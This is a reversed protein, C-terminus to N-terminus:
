ILFVMNEAVMVQNDEQMKDLCSNIESRTFSKESDGKTVSEIIQQLPLSQAHVKKFEGFLLLKFKKMREESIAITETDMSTEESMSISTPVSTVKQTPQDAIEEEDFEYIDRASRLKKRGPSAPHTEMEEEDAEDEDSGDKHKRKNAKELVKKFYAFQILEIAAQADEVEVNRSLRSKAHATALRIMTELTRATVPQTKALESNETDFSRLEAYAEAIAAGAENTLAPKMSKAIHIYKRMFKVSVVKESRSRNGHLLSDYKEYIPTESDEEGADIDKTSLFDAASIIPMPEGDQENPNRYRHMRVVHDAIQTDINSDSKDLMIFLLDFRSLLSDQLGINEMPTKHEDYRGYVPNAAALVSCRANLKAHIGAKTITVRGQEMVEHIATRDVDSMKDFEDICVVGRDALVMAGAELRREGTEFDTTVAATLGVGSSGRGTTPVARPASHLVYRLLQSKAVSPDGILLVNIDGRLRTGNPLVKEVGGLLMCLLAKKVLDHGHISPALSRALLEFVDQNKQRSFRKCKQVDASSILPSVEKSLLQINNAILITRFTGNSYSGQKSPLCRYTGVVQVRDGPKCQDVLDNDCIIDVSRPLQGPPAKEPMEQITFTQHDKYSSLGYETELLNGDEDKTPYVSSSPFAEYSTFDSYKREMFKKTAPCYHVSKVVKPRVLSCKTVIGEVCVIQGLFHSTLTRPTVHKSGFSGELGIFLDSHKTHYEIDISNVFDKLANEFAILEEFSNNILRSARKANKKRLDNINVILRIQNNAVMDKVLLTYTGTDSDDDLFDLYERQIERLDRDLSLDITDM